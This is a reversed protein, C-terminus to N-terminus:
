NGVKDLGKQLKKGIDKTLTDSKSTVEQTWRKHREVGILEDLTEPAFYHLGVGLLIIGIAITVIGKAAKFVFRIVILLIVLAIAIIIFNEM